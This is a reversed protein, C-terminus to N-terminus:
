DIGRHRYTPEAINFKRYASATTKTVRKFTKSFQCYCSFGCEDAIHYLPWDTTQLLGKAKQVRYYALRNHFNTKLVEKFIRAIYSPSLNISQQLDTFELSPDNFNNKLFRDMRDALMRPSSYDPKIWRRIAGIFDKKCLPKELYDRAGIKITRVALNSSTKGNIMICNTEIGQMQVQYLVELGNMDSLMMDLIAVDCNRNQLVRLAALGNSATKASWHEECLWEKFIMLIQPNGDAVLIRVTNNKCKHNRSM